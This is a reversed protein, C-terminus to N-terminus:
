ILGIHKLATYVGDQSCPDTIYDACRLLAPDANGMAVGTGAYRIMDLDNGGDGFAMSEERSFEYHRLIQEMGWAKGCARPIIDTARDWWRATKVHFTNRILYADQEPLAGIMLQYVGEQLLEEFDPLVNCSHHSIQMYEELFDNYFNSGMRRRTAALVPLGLEGANKVVQKVDDTDMPASCITGERDYCYSGNFCLVGDFDLGEFSPLQLPTRGTAIFIRIGRKQLERLASRVPQTITSAGFNLLTGDIDFFCIKIAM